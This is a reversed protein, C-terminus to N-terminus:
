PRLPSESHEAKDLLDKRHRLKDAMREMKEGIDELEEDLLRARLWPFLDGEEKGVHERVALDLRSLVQLLQPDTQSLDLLQQILERVQEHERISADAAEPVGHARYAPYLFQEEIATHVTLSVVANGLLDIQEDGTTEKARLLDAVVDTHQKMLLEIANM